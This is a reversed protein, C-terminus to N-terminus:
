SIKRRKQTQLSAALWDLEAETVLYRRGSKLPTPIRERILEDLRQRSYKKYWGTREALLDCAEDVDYVTIAILMPM